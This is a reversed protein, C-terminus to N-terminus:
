PTIVTLKPRTPPMDVVSEDPIQAEAERATACAKLIEEALAVAEDHPLPINVTLGGAQMAVEIHQGQLTVTMQGLGAPAVARHRQWPMRIGPVFQPGSANDDNSM